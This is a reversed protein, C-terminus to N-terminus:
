RGPYTVNLPQSDTRSSLSFSSNVYQTQIQGSTFVFITHIQGTAFVASCNYAVVSPRFLVPLFGSSTQRTNASAHGLNGTNVTVNDNNRIATINGSTFQNDAAKVLKVSLGVIMWNSGDSVVECFDNSEYLSIEGSSFSGIGQSESTNLTYVQTQSSGKHVVRLRKGPMTTADPLTITFSAGSCVLIDDNITPTDAGVISRISLRPYAGVALKGRTVNADAIKATTVASDALPTTGVNGPALVYDKIQPATVRYSQIGDDVAYNVTDTVSDRLQLDTIKKDAM